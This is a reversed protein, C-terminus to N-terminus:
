KNLSAARAYSQARVRSTCTDKNLRVDTHTGEEARARRRARTCTGKDARVDTHARARRAGRHVHERESARTRAHTSTSNLVWNLALALGPRM